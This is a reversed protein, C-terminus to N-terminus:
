SRSVSRGVTREALVLAEADDTRCLRELAAWAPVESVLAYADVQGDARRRASMSVSLALRARVAPLLVRLEADTLAMEQDYGALLPMAASWPDEAEIGAYTMAVAPEVVLDSEVLDGFDILGRLDATAPELSSVVVNHDNGDNHILARRLGAGAAARAETWAAIAGEALRRREAGEIADSIGPMEKLRAIDWPNARRAAPEDLGVLAKDVRGLLRGLQSLVRGPREPLEALLHGPIYTLMHVLRRGDGSGVVELANGAKSLVTRPLCEVGRAALRNLVRIQLELSERRVTPAAIKLVHPDGKAGRVVFNADAWGALVGVETPKWYLRACLERAEAEDVQAAQHGTAAMAGIM